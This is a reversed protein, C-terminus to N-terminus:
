TAVAYPNRLKRAAELIRTVAASPIGVESGIGTPTMSQDALTLIEAVQAVPLKSVRREIIARAVAWVGDEEDPEIMPEPEVPNGVAERAAAIADLTIRPHRPEPGPDADLTLQEDVPKPKTVPPE